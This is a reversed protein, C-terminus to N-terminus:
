STLWIKPKKLLSTVPSRLSVQLFRVRYMPATYVYDDLVVAIRRGINESTLKRWKRAGDANMQMSVAPRSNQDYSQRADTIVDGELPAM